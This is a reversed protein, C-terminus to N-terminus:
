VCLVYTSVISKWPEAGTPVAVCAAATPRLRRAADEAEGRNCENYFCGVATEPRVVFDGYAIAGDVRVELSPHGSPSALDDREVGIV